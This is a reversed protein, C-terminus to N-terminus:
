DQLLAEIAAARDPDLGVARALQVTELGLASYLRRERPSLRSLHLRVTDVDGRAVPGTLAAGLGLQEVNDMTGRMLPLAAAVADEETVGAEALTRAIAAAAALVYNSAFVAAAHYLPRMAPPIVLAQGDLATVLRRATTLAGPEGAVAYACGRLREAGSWPDAVTQLPHLSGVMYGATHLPTLVDTSLAGSLHLAVCPSPAEGLRAVQNAVDHLVDDPVALILINTERPIPGVGMEYSVGEAEFLPHPPAEPSRGFYTLSEVEGDQMLAGGLALGMRGPGIVAIRDSM